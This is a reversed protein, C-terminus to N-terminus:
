PNQEITIDTLLLTGATGGSVRNLRVRLIDGIVGGASSLLLHSTQLQNLASTTFALTTPTGFTISSMNLLRAVGASWTVSGVSGSSLYHALKLNIFTPATLIPFDFYIYGTATSTIRIYNYLGVIFFSPDTATEDFTLTTIPFRISPILGYTYRDPLPTPASAGLAFRPGGQIVCSITGDAAGAFRKGGLVGLTPAFLSAAQAEGIEAWVGGGLHKFARAAMFWESGQPYGNLENEQPTPPIERDFSREIMWAINEGDRRNLTNDTTNLWEMHPRPDPPPTPGSNKTAAAEFLANIILRVSNGSGEGQTVDIETQTVQAM